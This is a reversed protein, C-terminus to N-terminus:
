KRNIQKRKELRIDKGELKFVIFNGTIRSFTRESYLDILQKFPLNTSIITAKQQLHRENLIQFLQSSVFSNTTETGLDDIILLDSLFVHEKYYPNEEKFNNRDFVIKSLIEFLQFSTFYIVSFGKDILAKAICNTLFTKGVGVNGYFFINQYHIKFSETFKYCEEIIKRMLPKIEPSYYKLSLTSFNEEDLVSKLNSHSYLLDIVAQRLCHCKEGHIYGTDKCDECEYQPELYDSPFHYTKLLSEKQKCLEKLSSRLSSIADMDGMVRKKGQRVSLEAIKEDLIKYEPILCYIERRREDLLHWTRMQKKEYERFIKEYDFNSLPM